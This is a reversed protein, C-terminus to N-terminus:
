VADTDKSGGGSVVTTTATSPWKLLDTALHSSVQTASIKWIDRGQNVKAQDTEAQFRTLDPYIGSFGIQVLTGASDSWKFERFFDATFQSASKGKNISSNPDAEGTLVTNYGSIKASGDVLGELKFLQNPADNIINTYVYINLTAGSAVPVAVLAQLSPNGTLNACSVQEKGKDAADANVISDWHSPAKIIDPCPREGLLVVPTQTASPPTTGTTTTATSQTQSPPTAGSSCASIIFTLTLLGLAVAFTAGARRPRPWGIRRLTSTPSAGVRSLSTDPFLHRLTKM